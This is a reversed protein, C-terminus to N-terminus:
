VCIRCQVNLALYSYMVLLPSRQRAIAALHKPLFHPSRLDWFASFKRDGDRGIETFSNWSRWRCIRHLSCMRALRAVSIGIGHVLLCLMTRKLFSSNRWLHCLSTRCGVLSCWNENKEIHLLLYVMEKGHDAPAAVIADQYRKYYMDLIAARESEPRSPDLASYFTHNSWLRLRTILVSAEREVSESGALIPDICFM